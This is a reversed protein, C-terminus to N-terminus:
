TMQAFSQVVRKLSGKWFKQNSNLVSEIRWFGKFQVKILISFSFRNLIKILVKILISFLSRLFFQNLVEILVKILVKILVSFQFWNLAKVVIQILISEVWDEWINPVAIKILTSFQFRKLIKFKNKILSKLPIKLFLRKLSGKSWFQSSFGIWTM